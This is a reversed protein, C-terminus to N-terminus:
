GCVRYFQWLGTIGALHHAGYDEFTLHSGAVLNKVTNSTIVEGVGALEAARVAIDKAIGNVDRDLVDVEGTHVGIRAEIGQQQLDRVIALACQLARTPGDFIALLTKDDCRINNGRFRVLINAIITDDRGSRNRQGPDNSEINGRTTGTFNAVLITTLIRNITAAAPLNDLFAGIADLISESTDSVWALHDKGPLEVYQAGPIHEALYRGGEVDILVDESRHIVLTPVRITPLIDSIDIESNMRMLAIAAGPTAGLREFKGWWAKFAPDNAMGPAFKPVSNGSGWDSEMYDFLEQLSDETPFWSTFRAFAGYLVLAQSREPHSAAFLAALSGGESIGMIAAREFGVADMVARVDDMREDMGPLKNVPDSLGTGRKDFMAVRALRGLRTLWRNFHPDDWYNDIHSVFGPALIMNIPGDGFLQYAVHVDGSKAYRTTPHPTLATAILGPEERAIESRDGASAEVTAVFRFGRGHITRICRQASGNDGISQRAAKIRSSLASDSVVRGKWITNFIEDKTVIRERNEILLILLDLVQPELAVRRDALTLEFTRTDVRCQNFSYIM